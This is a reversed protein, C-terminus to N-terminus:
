NKGQVRDNGDAYLCATMVAVKFLLFIEYDFVGKLSYEIERNGNCCFHESFQGYKSNIGERERELRSLCANKRRQWFQVTMSM